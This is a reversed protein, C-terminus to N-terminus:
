NGGPKKRGAGAVQALPCWQYPAAGEGVRAMYVTCASPELRFGYPALMKAAKDASDRDEAATDERDEAALVLRCGGAQDEVAAHLEFHTTLSHLLRCGGPGSSLGLRAAWANAQAVSDLRWPYHAEILAYVEKDATMARVKAAYRQSEPFGRRVGIFSLEEPLRTATWSYPWGTGVFLVATRAPSPLPPQEVSYLPDAAQEHGWTNCGGLLVVATCAGM